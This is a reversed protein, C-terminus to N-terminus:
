GEAYFRQEGFSLAMPGHNSCQRCGGADRGQRQKSDTPRQQGKGDIKRTVGRSNDGCDRRDNLGCDATDFDRLPACAELKM